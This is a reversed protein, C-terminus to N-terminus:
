GDHGPIQDGRPTACKKVAFRSLRGRCDPNGAGLSHRPPAAASGRRRAAAVPPSAACPPTTEAAPPAVKPREPPARRAFAPAPPCFLRVRPPNRPGLPHARVGPDRAFGPCAPDGDPRAGPLFRSAGPCFPANPHGEPAPVAPAPPLFAGKQRSFPPCRPQAPAFVPPSLQRPTFPEKAMHLSDEPPKPPFTPPKSFAKGRAYLFSSGKAGKRQRHRVTM